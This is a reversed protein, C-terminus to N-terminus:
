SERRAKIAKHIGWLAFGASIVQVGAGVYLASLYMVGCSCIHVVLYAIWGRLPKKFGHFLTGALFFLAGLGEIYPMTEDFGHVNFNALGTIGFALGCIILVGTLWMVELLKGFTRCLLYAAVLGSMLELTSLVYAEKLYLLVTFAPVGMMYVIWAARRLRVNKESIVLLGKNALYCVSGLIELGFVHYEEKGWM